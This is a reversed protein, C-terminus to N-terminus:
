RLLLMKKTESGAATELRYFYVGSALEAGSPDCGDWTVENPGAECMDDLVTRIRRGNVNFVDIRARGDAPMTFAITASSRFPNPCNQSLALTATTDGSSTGDGVTVCEIHPIRNFGTVTLTVFGSDPLSGLIEIVAEGFSDAIASGLFSGSDSLAATAEPETLVTFSVAGEEIHEDHSVTLTDPTDSRVTLAPDGFVHWHNFEDMGASGYEDMMKCSGNFCLGGVTQMEESVLLHAIELQASIPPVWSMSISSAYVGVGGTPETGNTARLWVEAFCTKDTYQGTKCADSIIWPLMNDNVLANVDGNIYTGTVWGMTNGHGLYNVLSRGENLAASIEASTVGPDYFQDVHTYTFGLLTERIAEIFEYDPTGTGGDQDSAIGTAMHYWDAGPEPDREYEITREVQTAVEDLTEASFRGVFADPYNDSGALLAYMPDASEGGELLYPMQEDDGVLLVYAVGDTDYANQIYTKIDDATAGVTSLDVLTTPIGIQNRWEALPRATEVFADNAIILMPGSEAVPTYRGALSRYNLYRSGYLREFEAVRTGSRRKLVNVNGPGATSVEVTISTYVRLVHTRANYQFPNLEVVIGRTDRMIFPEGLRAIEAPYWADQEYITGFEYPVSDPDVNRKIVGRSPVVDIQDFDRFGADIVRVAMQADDPIVISRRVVPLEPFGVELMRTGGDLAVSFLLRGNIDVPEITFSGVDLRLITSEFSSALLTLESPATGYALEVREYATSTAALAVLILLTTILPRL